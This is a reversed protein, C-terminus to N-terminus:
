GVEELTDPYAWLAFKEKNVVGQKKSSNPKTTAKENSQSGSIKTKGM